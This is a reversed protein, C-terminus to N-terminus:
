TDTTADSASRMNHATSDRVHQGDDHCRLYDSAYVEAMTNSVHDNCVPMVADSNAPCTRPMDQSSLLQPSCYHQLAIMEACVGQCACVAHVIENFSPFCATRPDRQTPQKRM